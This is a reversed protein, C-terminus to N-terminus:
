MCSTSRGHGRVFEEPGEAWDLRRQEDNVARPGDVHISPKVKVEHMDDVATNCGVRACSLGLPAHDTRCWPQCDSMM